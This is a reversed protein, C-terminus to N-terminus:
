IALFDATVRLLAFVFVSMIVCEIVVELYENILEKM